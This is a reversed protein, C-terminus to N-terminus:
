APPRGDAAGADRGTPKEDKSEPGKPRREPAALRLVASGHTDAIAIGDAGDPLPLRVRAVTSLHAKLQDDLDKREGSDADGLLPFDFRVADLTKGGRTARAEFRGTYRKMVTPRAFRGAEVKEVTLKGREWRLTLDAYDSVARPSEGRTTSEPPDPRPEASAAACAAVACLPLALARM